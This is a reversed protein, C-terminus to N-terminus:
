FKIGKSEYGARLRQLTTTKLRKNTEFRTLSRVSIGTAHAADAMTWGLAKRARKSQPPTIGACQQCAHYPVSCRCSNAQTAQDYAVEWSALEDGGISYLRCFESRDLTGDNIAAVVELKRRMVWRINSARGHRGVNVPDALDGASSHDTARQVNFM